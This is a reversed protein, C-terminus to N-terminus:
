PYLPLWPSPPFPFFIHLVHIISELFLLFFLFVMLHLLLVGKPNLSEFMGCSRASLLCTPWLHLRQTHGPGIGAGVCQPGEQHPPTETLWHWTRCQVLPLSCSPPDRWYWPCTHCTCFPWLVEKASFSPFLYQQKNTKKFVYLKLSLNFAPGPM